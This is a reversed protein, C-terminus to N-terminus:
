NDMSEIYVRAYRRFEFVPNKDVIVGNKCGIIEYRM